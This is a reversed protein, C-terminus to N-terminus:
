FLFYAWRHFNKDFLYIKQVFVIPFPLFYADDGLDYIFYNIMTVLIAPLVIGATTCKVLVFHFVESFREIKNNLNCYKFSAMPNNSEAFQFEKM